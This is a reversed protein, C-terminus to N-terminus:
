QEPFDSRCGVQLSRENRGGAAKAGFARLHNSLFAFLLVSSGFSGETPFNIQAETCYILAVDNKLIKNAM